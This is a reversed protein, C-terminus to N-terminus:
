LCLRPLSGLLFAALKAADPASLPVITALDAIAANVIPPTQLSPHDDPPMGVLTM